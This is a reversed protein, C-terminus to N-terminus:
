AISRGGDVQVTIGTAMDAGERAFGLAIERGISRSGGTVIAIQDKLRM